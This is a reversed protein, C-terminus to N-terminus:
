KEGKSTMALDKLLRRWGSQRESNIEGEEM